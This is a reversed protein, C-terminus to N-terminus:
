GVNTPEERRHTHVVWYIAGVAAVGLAWAGNRGSLNIAAYCLMVLTASVAIRIVRESPKALPLLVGGWLTYWAHLAPSCFAVALYSGSLFRLPKTGLYRVALYVIIVLSTAMGLVRFATLAMSMSPDLGFLDLLSQVGWGVVTFPALSMVLGPVTVANMWGFGLGTVVSVGAFVGIAVCLALIVKLAAKLVEKIQWSTWPSVLFPLGVATMLAPQKIAAAAGVIAAGIIWWRTRCSFWIAFVMLGVMLADNHAGGVFDIVVIPNLIALWGALYRDGGRLQAIKPLFFGILGVGIVAPVRMLVASWYADFGTLWCLWYSMKLALPGYPSPTFRWVWSVQDAYAGPLVGPGFEYPNIGNNILWGHAAYSYADHSFIPPSLLFPVSWILLVAWHRLERDARMRFWADILLLLGAFVIITGGWKVPTGALGLYKLIDWVPSSQPLYAPTLSGVAILATGLFGAKVERLSWAKAVERM